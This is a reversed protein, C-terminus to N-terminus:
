HTPTKKKFVFAKMAIFFYLVLFAMSLLQILQHNYKYIDVFIYLACLNLIYGIAHTIFFRVAAGSFKGDFLFVWKRNGYFSLSFVLIYLATMTAKPDAGHHTAVLYLLYATINTSIGIIGYRIFQGYTNLATAKSDM